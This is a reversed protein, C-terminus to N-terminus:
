PYAKIAAAHCVVIRYKRAVLLLRKHGIGVIM